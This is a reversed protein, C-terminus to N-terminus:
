QEACDRVVEKFRDANVCHVCEQVFNMCLSCPWNTAGCEPCKYLISDITLEIGCEVCQQKAKNKLM